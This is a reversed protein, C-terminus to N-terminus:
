PNFQRIHCLHMLPLAEIDCRAPELNQKAAKALSGGKGEASMAMVLTLDRQERTM